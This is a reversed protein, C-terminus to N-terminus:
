PNATLWADRAQNLADDSAPFYGVDVIEENVYTLYFNIFDAVQPKEAMISAASYIFLPRSFPAYTGTEITKPNPLVPGEGGDIAIAEKLTWSAAQIISGEIQNRIGDPNIIEGSDVAGSLVLDDPCEFVVVVQDAPVETLVAM